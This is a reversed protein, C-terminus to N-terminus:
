DPPPQKSAGSVEGAKSRLRVVLELTQDLLRHRVLERFRLAEEALPLAELERQMHPPVYLSGFGAVEEELLQLERRNRSLLRRLTEQEDM